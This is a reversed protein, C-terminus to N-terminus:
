LAGYQVGAGGNYFANREATNLVRGWIAIPGIRGDMHYGLGDDTIGGVRFGHSSAKIGDAYSQTVPSNNDVAMGHTDADADYYIYLCHWSDLAPVQPGHLLSYPTGNRLGSWYGGALNTSAAYGGDTTDANGFLRHYEFPDSTAHTHLYVWTAITFSGTLDLAANYAAILSQIPSSTGDFSRATSYVLGTASGVSNTDVLTVGIKEGVSDGSAEDLAFYEVLGDALDVDLAPIGSMATYLASCYPAIDIDYFAIRQVSGGFFEEGAGSGNHGCLMFIIEDYEAGAPIADGVPSGDFYGQHDAIAAIGSSPNGTSFRAGGHRFLMDGWYRPNISFTRAGFLKENNNVAGSFQVIASTTTDAKLGSAELGMTSSNGTWGTGISFNPAALAAHVVADRGVGPNPLNLLSDAYSLADAPSYARLCNAAPIGGALYWPVTVDGLGVPKSGRAAAVPYPM